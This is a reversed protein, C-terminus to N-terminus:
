SMLLVPKITRGDHSDEFARNIDSFDYTKTLRDYPFRGQRNWEILKPLFTNTMGSGLVIFGVTAARSLILQLVSQSVSCLILGITFIGFGLVYVRRRGFVDGIRGIILKLGTSVLLYVVTVWLVVSLETEFVKTFTPFSINVISMDLAGMFSGISVTLLALWKYAIGKSEKVAM